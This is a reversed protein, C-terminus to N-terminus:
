LTIKSYKYEFINIADPFNVGKKLGDSVHKKLTASHIDEKNEFEAGKEILAEIVEKAKEDDGRGLTVTITNKVLEAGDETSRLWALLAPKDRVSVSLGDKIQIKKGDQTTIETIQWQNMIEPIQVQRVSFLDKKRLKLAAEIDNISAGLKQVLEYISSARDEDTPAELVAQKKVLKTILGLDVEPKTEERIADLDKFIDPQPQTNM